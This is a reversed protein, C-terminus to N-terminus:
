SGRISLRREPVDAARSVDRDATVHFPTEETKKKWFEHDWRGKFHVANTLVLRTLKNFSEPGVLDEIKGNTQESVWDNITEAADTESESFDLNVLDAGFTKNTRKLFSASFPYEEAGWLRNASRLRYGQGSSNLSANLEGFGVAPASTESEVHLVNALERRTEGAAGEKAMALAVALGAPSFVLNDGDTKLQSYLDFALQNSAAATGRLDDTVRIPPSPKFPEDDAHGIIEACSSLSAIFLSSALLLRPSM